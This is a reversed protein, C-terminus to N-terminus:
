KAPKFVFPLKLSVNVPTGGKTGPKFQWKSVAQLCYKAVEDNSTQVVSLNKTSGDRNVILQLEVRGGELTLYYPLDPQKTAIPEPKRDVENIAYIRNEPKFEASLEVSKGSEVQTTLVVPDFRPLNVEYTAEGAPQDRLTLPTVGLVTGARTVTAGEPASAITVVGNPWAWRLHTTAGRAISVVQSHPTWGERSLTLQYDGPPLDDLAAPTKGTRRLEPNIMLPSSPRLEFAAEGPESNIRLSGIASVLPITGTDTTSNEAVALDLKVEEHGPLTIVVTYTGIKIDNFTAPTTQPPLNGVTVRAGSPNTAIVLSGRANALRAASQAAAESEAAQRATESEVLKQAFEVEIKKRADAESMARQEALKARERETNLRQEIQSKEIALQDAAESQSDIYFFAAAIVCATVGGLVFLLSKKKPARARYDPVPAPRFGPSPLVNASPPESAKQVSPAVAARTPNEPSHSGPVNSATATRSPPTNRAAVAAILSKTPKQDTVATQSLAPATPTNKAASTAPTPTTSPTKLSTPASTAPKKPLVAAPAVTKAASVALAVDVAPSPAPVAPASSAPNWEAHWPSTAASKTATHTHLAHLLNFWTTPLNATSISADFSIGAASIWKKLDPTHPALGLAAAMQPGFWQQTVPLGTVFLETPAPRDVLFRGLDAKIADALRLAIKPGSETFDYDTNFFLKVASGRFKLNLEAQVADGIRALDLAIPGAALVGEAGVLMAQSTLEGVDILLISRGATTTLTGAASLAAAISRLSKPKASEFVATGSHDEATTSLLWPADSLPGGDRATVAAIWRPPKGAAGSLEAFKRVGEIGAHRKVEEVSALHLTRIKPRSACVIMAGPPISAVLSAADHAPVEKLEEIRLPHEGSACRVLRLSFDTQEFFYIPDRSM